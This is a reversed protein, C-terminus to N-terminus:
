HTDQMEDNFFIRPAGPVTYKIRSKKRVRIHHPVDKEVVSSSGSCFMKKRMATKVPRMDTAWAVGSFLSITTPKLLTAQGGYRM